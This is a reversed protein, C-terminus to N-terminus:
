DCAQHKIIGTIKVYSKKFSNKVLKKLYLSSKNRNENSKSQEGKGSKNKRPKFAIGNAESLRQLIKMTMYCKTGKACGWPVAKFSDKNKSTFQDRGEPLNKEATLTVCPSIRVLTSILIVCIALAKMWNM